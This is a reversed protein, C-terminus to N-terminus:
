PPPPRRAWSQSTPMLRLMLRPRTLTLVKDMAERSLVTRPPISSSQRRGGPPRGGPGVRWVDPALAKSPAEGGHHGQGGAAAANALSPRVAAYAM